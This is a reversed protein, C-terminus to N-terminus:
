EDCLRPVFPSIAAITDRHSLTGSVRARKAGLARPGCVGAFGIMDSPQFEMALTGEPRVDWEVQLLGDASVGIWPRPLQDESVLFYALRRLSELGMPLEDPPNQEDLARLERLRQAIEPCGGAHLANIIEGHTEAAAIATAPDQPQIAADPM